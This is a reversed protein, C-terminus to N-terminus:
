SRPPKRDVRTLQWFYRRGGEPDLQSLREVEAAAVEESWVIREVSVEDPWAPGDDPASEIAVIAYAEQEEAFGTEHREEEETQLASPAVPKQRAAPAREISAGFLRRRSQLIALLKNRREAGFRAFRRGLSDSPDKLRRLVVPTEAPSISALVEGVSAEAAEYLFRIPGDASQERPLAALLAAECSLRPESFAPPARRADVRAALEARASEAAQFRAATDADAHAAYSTAGEIHRELNSLTVDLSRRASEWEALSKAGALEDLRVEIQERSEEMRAALARAAEAQEEKTPERGQSKPPEWGGGRGRTREIGM